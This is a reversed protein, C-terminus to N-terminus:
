DAISENSEEKNNKLKSKERMQKIGSILRFDKLTYARDSLL